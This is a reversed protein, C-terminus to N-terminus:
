RQRLGRRKVNGWVARGNSSTAEQRKSDGGDIGTPSHRRNVGVAGDPQQDEM